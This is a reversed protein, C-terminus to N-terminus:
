GLAELTYFRLGVFSCSFNGAANRGTEAAARERPSMVNTKGVGFRRVPCQATELDVRQWVRRKRWVGERVSKLM